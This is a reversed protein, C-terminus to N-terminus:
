PLYMPFKVVSGDDLQLTIFGKDDVYKQLFSAQAVCRRVVDSTSDAGTDTRLQELLAKDRESFRVSTTKKENM